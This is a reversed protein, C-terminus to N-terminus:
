AARTLPSISLWGHSSADKADVGHADRVFSPVFAPGLGIAGALEPGDDVWRIATGSSSRSRSWRRWSADKRQMRRQWQHDLQLKLTGNAFRVPNGDLLHNPAITVEGNRFSPIPEDIRSPDAHRVLRQLMSSPEAVLDEYRVFAYPTGKTALRRTLANYM